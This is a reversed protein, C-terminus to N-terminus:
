SNIENKTVLKMNGPCGPCEGCVNGCCSHYLVVKAASNKETYDELDTTPIDEGAWLMRSHPGVARTVQRYDSVLEEDQEIPKAAVLNFVDGDRRIEVNCNNQHNCYRALTTLNWIKAGFEDEGDAHMAIDIVDGAEYDRGAFVGQGQIDSKATYWNDGGALKLHQNIAESLVARLRQDLVSM